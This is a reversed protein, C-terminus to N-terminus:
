GNGGDGDRIMSVAKLLDNERSTSDAIWHGIRDILIFGIKGNKVKKDKRMRELIESWEMGEPLAPVPLTSLFGDIELHNSRSLKKRLRSLAAAYRMGWIVAEGHRYKEYKGVSELAHGFTHGFNLAERLGKRDLEDRSVFKAKWHLCREVVSSIVAPNLDLFERVHDKLYRYLKPDFAIGYKVSEGFGSIRDREGLTKLLDPDCVVLRPQHFAGILNKGSDHNIGTKGGVSSDVQALLTTPIGVWDIGRLYTAAVFGGVDGITGGGLAFLTSHRDLGAKLLEDYIPYVSRIEKLGEGADVSFCHVRWGSRRLSAELRARADVLRADCLVVASKTGGKPLWKTLHDLAGSGIRVSYSRSGLSVKVQASRFRPSM